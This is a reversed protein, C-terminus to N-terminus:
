FVILYQIKCVLISIQCYFIINIDAVVYNKLKFIINTNDYYKKHIQMVLFSFNYKLESFMFIVQIIEMVYIIIKIPELNIFIINTHM